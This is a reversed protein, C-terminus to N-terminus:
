LEKFAEINGETMSKITKLNDEVFNASVNM